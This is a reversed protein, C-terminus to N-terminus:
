RYFVCARANEACRVRQMIDARAYCRTTHRAPAHEIPTAAAAPASLVASERYMLGQLDVERLLYFYRATHESVWHNPDNAGKSPAAATASATQHASKSADSGSGVSSVAAQGSSNNNEIKEAAVAASESTAGPAPSPAFASLFRRGMCPAARRLTRLLMRPQQARPPPHSSSSAHLHHPATLQFSADLPPLAIASPPPSVLPTQPPLVSVAARTPGATSRGRRRLAANQLLSVALSRARCHAVALSLM